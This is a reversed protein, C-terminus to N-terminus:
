AGTAPEPRQLWWAGIALEGFPPLLARDDDRAVATLAPRGDITEFVEVTRRVPDVIWTWPVGSRAFLPLKVTRDERETSPSLVECCWDPLVDIPNEDPLDPM